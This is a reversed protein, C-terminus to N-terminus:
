EKILSGHEIIEQVSVNAILIGSTDTIIGSM